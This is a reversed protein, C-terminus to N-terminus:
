KKGAKLKKLAQEFQEGDSFSTDDGLEQRIYSLQERLIYEKQNKEIRGRIQNGLQMRLKLVELENTLITALTQFREELGSAELVEQRKRYDMPISMATEDLLKGLSHNSKALEGLTKSAKPNVKGYEACLTLLERRMAEITNEDTLGTDEPIIEIEALLYDEKEEAFDLLRARQGGEVLVRILKDSLKSIKRITALNGVEYVDGVGPDETESQRQAVLFIKQDSMMAQEVALISKVRSLDFHIIMDPMITIDRLAITPAFITGKGTIQLEKKIEEM